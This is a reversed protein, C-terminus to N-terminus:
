QGEESVVVSWDAVNQYLHVPLRGIGKVHDRYAFHEQIQWLPFVSVDNVVQRHIRRLTRAANQWSVAFALKQMNQEVPASINKVVGGRGFLLEVNTLPEEMSMQYYLFDWEDDAPRVEGNELQRLVSKIGIAEWMRQINICAQQAIEDVPHALTITPFELAPNEMGKTALLSLQTQYVVRTLVMGLRDNFPQLGVGLNYAYSVQDNDETGIPFPGSIVECGSVERGGCIVDGLILERNIGQMLGNRFSRDEMFANRENPVLMHVTPVIYSEVEIGASGELRNLDSLRVRDVVDVEGNILADAAATASPFQWEIIENDPGKFQGAYAPNRNFVKVEENQESLVFPGNASKSEADRPYRFQFLAQPKIFSRTLKVRISNENEIEITEVVRAFPVYYEDSGISGRALMRQSLQYADIGPVAVQKKDPKIVFRFEFGDDDIQELEGNLFEYHGGDDGPGTFEVVSRETLRGIRRAGWDDLSLPDPTNSTQSVGVFMIPFRKLIETQLARAEPRNPWVRHAQRATLHAQKGDSGSMQQRAKALLLDSQERLKGRWLDATPKAADGYRVELDDTAARVQEYLGREFKSEINKSHCELILEVPKKSIGPAEFDKDRDYIDQFIALALEFNGAFYNKAGDRFLLNQITNTLQRSKNGGRDYIYILNRFAMGYDDKRIFQNAEAQLLELYSRYGVINEYSVQLRDDSLDPSEFILTGGTPLPNPLPTDLPKIKFEVNGNFEDLKLLDFPEQEILPISNAKPPAQREQEEQEQWAYLSSPQMLMCGATAVFLAINLAFFKATNSNM